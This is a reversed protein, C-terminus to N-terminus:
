LIGGLDGKIGAAGYFALIYKDPSFRNGWIVRGYTKFFHEVHTKFSFSASSRPSERLARAWLKALELASTRQKKFVMVLDDVDPDLYRTIKGISWYTPELLMVLVKGFRKYAIAHRKYDLFTIQSWRDIDESFNVAIGSLASTWQIANQAEIFYKKGCSIAFDIDLSPRVGGLLSGAAAGTLFIKISGKVKKLNRSLESFFDDIIKKNM